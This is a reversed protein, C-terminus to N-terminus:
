INGIIWTKWVKGWWMLKLEPAAYKWYLEKRLRGFLVPDGAVAEAGTVPDVTFDEQTATVTEVRESDFLISATADFLLSTASAQRKTVIFEFDLGASIPAVGSWSQLTDTLYKLSVAGATEVISLGPFLGMSLAVPLDRYYEFDIRVMSPSISQPTTFGNLRWGYGFDITAPAGSYEAGATCVLHVGDTGLLGVVTNIDKKLCAVSRIVRKRIYEGVYEKYTRDHLVRPNDPQDVYPLENTWLSGAFSNASM